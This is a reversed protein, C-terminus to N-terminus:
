FENTLTIWAGGPVPAAFFRPRRMGLSPADHRPWFWYAATGAAVAGGIVFSLTSLNRARDGAELSQRLDECAARTSETTPACTGPELSRKRRNAEDFQSGATANLYVGLAVGGLAVAAGTTVIAINPGRRSRPSPALEFSVQDVSVPSKPPLTPALSAGVPLAPTPEHLVIDLQLVGGKQLAIQHTTAVQGHRSVSLRHAGPEVYIPADIPSVAVLEGDVFVQAGRVNVSLQVAGLEHAAEALIEEIAARKDPRHEPSKLSEAAHTACARFQRLECEAQALLVLMVPNTERSERLIRKCEEFNDSDYARKAKRYIEDLAATAPYGPASTSDAASMALAGRLM